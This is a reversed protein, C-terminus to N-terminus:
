GQNRNDGDVTWDYPTKSGDLINLMGSGTGKEVTERGMSPRTTGVGDRHECVTNDGLRCTSVSVTIEM